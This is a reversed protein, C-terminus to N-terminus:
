PAEPQPESEPASQAGGPQSSDGSTTQRGRRQMGRGRAGRGSQRARDAQAQLAQSEAAWQAENARYRVMFYLAGVALAIVIVIIVFIPSLSKKV